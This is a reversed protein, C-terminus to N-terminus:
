DEWYFIADMVLYQRANRYITPITTKFSLPQNLEEAELIEYNFEKLAKESEKRVNQFRESIHLSNPRDIISGYAGSVEKNTEIHLKKYRYDEGMIAVPALRSIDLVIGKTEIEQMGHQEEVIVRDEKQYCFFEIFSAYGSGFHNWEAECVVNPIRNIRHFMRNIHAVIEQEDKTDYPYADCVVKGAILTQLQENSFM